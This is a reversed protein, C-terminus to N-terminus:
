SQNFYIVIRNEKEFRPPEELKSGCLGQNQKTTLIKNRIKACCQNIRNRTFRIRNGFVYAYTSDGYEKSYELMIRKDM